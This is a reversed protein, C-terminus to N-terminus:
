GTYPNAIEHPLGGDSEKSRTVICCESETRFLADVCLPTPHMDYKCSEPM